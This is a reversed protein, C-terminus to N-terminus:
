LGNLGNGLGPMSNNGMVNGSDPNSGDQAADGQSPSLGRTQGGSLIRVIDVAKTNKVQYYFISQAGASKNPRDLERAWSVTYELAEPSVSFVLLSNVNSVPILVISAPTQLSKSASYGQVGLVET